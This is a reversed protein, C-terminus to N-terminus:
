NDDDDDSLASLFGVAAGGLFSGIGRIISSAASGNNGGATEQANALNDKITKDNPKLKLAKQYDSIANQFDNLCCYTNGRMNFLDAESHNLKIANNFNELANDYDELQYYVQGRYFYSIADNDDLAISNSFYNIANDYDENAQAAVGAFFWTVDDNPNLELSKDCLELVKDYNEIELQNKAEDRLAEAKQMDSNSVENNQNAVILSTGIAVGCNSCFKSGEILEKGCNSCFM